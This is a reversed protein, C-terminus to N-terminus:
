LLAICYRVRDGDDIVIAIDARFRELLTSSWKILGLDPKGEQGNKLLENFTDCFFLAKDRLNKIDFDFVWEDRNTKAGSSVICIANEDSASKAFKTQRDALPLLHKSILIPSMSGITNQTPRSRTM